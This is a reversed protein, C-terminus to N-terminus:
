AAGMVRCCKPAGTTAVWSIVERDHCTLAFAVRVIEGNCCNFELADSCRLCNSRITAVPGDHERPRRRGSHCELLRGHNKM